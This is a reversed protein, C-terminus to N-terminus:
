RCADRLKTCTDPLGDLPILGALGLVLRSRLGELRQAAHGLLSQRGVRAILRQLVVVLGALKGLADRLRVQLPEALLGLRVTGHEIPHNPQALLEAVHGHSLLLSGDPVHCHHELLVLLASFLIKM